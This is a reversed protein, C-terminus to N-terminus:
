KVAAPQEYNRMSVSDADDGQIALSLGGALRM